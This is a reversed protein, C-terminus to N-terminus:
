SRESRPTLSRPRTARRVQELAGVAVCWLGGTIAVWPGLWPRTFPPPRWIAMAAALAVVVGLGALVREASLRGHGLLRAALWLLAGLTAAIAAVLAWRAPGDWAGFPGSGPGFRSWPLATSIVCVGLGIGLLPSPRARRHRPAPIEEALPSPLCEAGLVQGRVPIACPLCLPRGCGACRAVAPRLPHLDCREVRLSGEGEWRGRQEAAM